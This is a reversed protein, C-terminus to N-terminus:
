ASAGAGAPRLVHGSLEGTPQGDLLVTKGNVVTAHYGTSPFVLRGAGAPFDRDFRVPGVGLQDPDFLVLDGAMGQRILGRDSLGVAMAPIFTLKSVAQELTLRGPVHDTLLRTTYDAGCFTLLHAGGDSSGAMLLPHDVLQDIVTRESEAINRRVAFMTALDESVALDLLAHIPTKSQEAALQAITRGEAKANAADRVAVVQVEDWRLALSGANPDAIEAQMAARTAPDTLRVLRQPM